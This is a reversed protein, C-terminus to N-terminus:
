IRFQLDTYGFWFIVQIFGQEFWTGRWGDSLWAVALCWLWAVQAYHDLYWRRAPAEMWVVGVLNWPSGGPRLGRRRRCLGSVASAASMDTPTPVLQRRTLARHSSNHNTFIPSVFLIQNFNLQNGCVAKESLLHGDVMHGGWEWVLSEVELPEQFPFANGEVATVIFCPKKMSIWSRNVSWCCCCAWKSWLIGTCMCGEMGDNRGRRKRWGSLATHSRSGRKKEQWCLLVLAGDHVEFSRM